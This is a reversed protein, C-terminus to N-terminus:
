EKIAIAWPHQLCYEKPWPIKIQHWSIGSDDSCFIGRNNVCYFEGAIKPNAALISIVTGKPEPLGTTVPMWKEGDIARRYMVSEADKVSHAKLAGRSASVVVNQPDSSNVALGYLYRHKLGETPRTWSKGYDFSEFYGDGASSYLRKPAKLHVSLTHTDFPGTEVGDIWTKGGDHSQVLAGAEIAVFLYGVKNIDPEIWRIHHTWPRPPFSWLISSKLKNLADMRQWSECGDDSIYLVSPETGVFIKNFGNNGREMPSVSLSMVQSDSIGMGGMDWTQGGDDTKWLGSDFTGCYARNSNQPDFAVTQPLHGTLSERVRWGDKSSDLVLLSSQM